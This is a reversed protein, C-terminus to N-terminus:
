LVRLEASELLHAQVWALGEARLSEVALPNALAWGQELELILKARKLFLAPLPLAQQSRSRHVIVSLRLALMALRSLEDGLGSRLKRLGGTQGLALWAIQDQEDATFGPMDSHQLLYASHKHHSDHSVALGIESLRAAWDLLQRQRRVLEQAGRAAQDYLAQATRSVQDAQVSDVQYRRMLSVVTRERPDLGAQRGLMDLLVGQGLAGRCYGMETLSFEDFAALMVAVGGALVPVRDAKLGALELRSVSGATILRHRLETLVGHGLPAGAFAQQAIQHLAKATGSTGVAYRWGHDRFQRAVVQFQARSQHYAESFATESVQGDAFFTQTLSVCGTPVSELLSVERNCGIICETSGGGIDIVLRDHGDSPLERSAGVYILRAEERGAIVEIPLGLVAEATRLFERANSAVRFTNTAVARVREPGFSRLRDAFGNLAELARQQSAHDLRGAADLGAALRVTRKLSDVPALMFGGEDEGAVRGILLRFSNSGLDIAALLNQDAM